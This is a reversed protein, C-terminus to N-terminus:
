TPLNNKLLGKTFLLAYKNKNYDITYTDIIGISNLRYIAKATDQSDRDAYYARQLKEIERDSSETLFRHDEPSFDYLAIFKDFNYNGRVAEALRNQLGTAFPHAKEVIKNNYVYDLHQQKLVFDKESKAPKSYFTNTFYVTLNGQEGVSMNKFQTEIGTFKGDPTIWVNLWDEILTGKPPQALKWVSELLPQPLTEFHLAGNHTNVYNTGTLGDANIYLRDDIDKYSLFYGTHEPYSTQIEEAIVDIRKSAPPRVRKRLEYLMTREKVEGKFSRQHFFNLVEFDVHIDREEVKIRDDNFLVVSLATKRDRGARGAEQVYSEISSPLGMHVTMRINSKDIGMGFAKTAVMVSNENATFRDMHTFSHRDIENALSRSVESSGMFFGARDGSDLDVGEVAEKLNESNFPAAGLIGENSGDHIGLPGSRHPTFVVVGYGFKDGERAFPKHADIFHVRKRTTHRYWEKAENENTASAIINQLEVDSLYSSYSHGAIKSITAYDNYPTIVVEKFQLLELTAAQKASGVIRNPDWREFPPKEESMDAEILRINYNVEDRVTNEFRVVADGDDGQIQLEREIDALVDFSATATLGFLPVPKMDWTKCFLQANVGLNLYPVRFDHGWESVCHAEDIVVYATAHGRKRALALTQRFEEIVLREPSIFLFQLAGSPLMRDQVYLREATSLTSNMYTTKDILTERLSRDQDFMLSRIPDVVVTIGPQLLAALQYTLSKGGGTPLLGIVSKGRFVRALIPLQGPRFDAKRFVNQLVNRLGEEGADADHIQYHVRAASIVGSQTGEGVFHCNRLQILNPVDHLQRDEAFIGTRRLMSHDVVLDFQNFDVTDVEKADISQCRVQPGAWEDQRFSGLDSLTKCLDAIALEGVRVDREIIALNFEGKNQSAWHESLLYWLVVRQLRAVAFPQLVLRHVPNTSFSPNYYNDKSYSVFEELSLLDVYEDTTKVPDKELIRTVKGGMESIACDRARDVTVDHFAAGDIEAFYIRNYGLTVSSTYKNLRDHHGRLPVELCFDGRGTMTGDGLTSLDRQPQLMQALYPHKALYHTLFDKEFASDLLTNDYWEAVKGPGPAIPHLANVLQRTNPTFGECFDYEIKGLESKDAKRKTLGLSVALQQELYVSPLTPLGRTLLNTAVALLSDVEKARETPLTTVVDFTTIWEFLGALRDRRASDKSAWEKLQRHVAPLIYSAQLQM